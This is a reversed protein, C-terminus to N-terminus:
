ISEGKAKAIISSGGLCNVIFEREEKRKEAEAIIEKAKVVAPRLAEEYEAETLSSFRNFSYRIHEAM